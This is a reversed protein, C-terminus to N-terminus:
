HYASLSGKLGFCKGKSYVMPADYILPMHIIHKARRSYPHIVALTLRSPRKTLLLVFIKARPQELMDDIMRSYEPEDFVGSLPTFDSIDADVDVRYWNILQLFELLHDYREKIFGIWKLMYRLREIEEGTVNRECFLDKIDEFTLGMFHDTQSYEEINAAMVNLCSERVDEM